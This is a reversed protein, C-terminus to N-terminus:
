PQTKTLQQLYEELTLGSDYIEKALEKGVYRYHWPEYIIGTSHTKDKPYRLIFGYRWANEMLWQQAPLTEQVETLSWSRTDIIDVALGLQHESTGPVAVVKAAAQKADAESYGADLYSTVKRNYLGAQYDNTRYGSIVCVSPCQANCANIMEVLADYCSRDVTIDKSSISTSLTVLDPTYDEPVSNWPNVLLIRQGNSAFHYTKGGIQVEGKVPSGNQDLYYTNGSEYLWGTQLIGNEDLFYRAGDVNLWGTARSGDAYIYVRQGDQEQWGSVSVATPDQAAHTTGAPDAPSRCAQLSLFTLLLAALIRMRKM